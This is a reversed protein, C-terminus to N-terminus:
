WSNLDRGIKIPFNKYYFINKYDNKLFYFNEKRKQKSKECQKQKRKEKTGFVKNMSMREKENQFKLDKECVEWLYYMKKRFIEQYDEDM